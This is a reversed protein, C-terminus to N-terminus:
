RRSLLHWAAPFALAALAAKVLDGTIFPTLGYEVAKDFGGVFTSLWALGPVYLVAAGLLMAAFMKVVNRDFGREALFGVLGAAAIFGVIYGGTPGMLIAPGAKFQAFVPLGVAGELAYLALTAAGLRSGYAGGITLVALTQLTMPVPVMPVNVQACVAVLASGLIALLAARLLHNSSAVPWLHNALTPSASNM